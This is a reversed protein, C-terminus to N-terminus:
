QSADLEIGVTVQPNKLYGDALKKALEVEIDRARLQGVKLRGVLPFEVTGDVDVVYKGSLTPENFVNITLQDRPSVLRESQGAATGAVLLVCAIITVIRRQSNHGM